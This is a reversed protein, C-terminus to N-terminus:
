NLNPSTQCCSHNHRLPGPSGGQEHWHRLKSSESCLRLCIKYQHVGMVKAGGDPIWIVLCNLNSQLPNRMEQGKSLVHQVLSQVGGKKFAAHQRSTSCTHTQALSILITAYNKQFPSTPETPGVMGLGGEKNNDNDM